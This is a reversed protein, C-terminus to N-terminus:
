VDRVRRWLRALAEPMTGRLAARAQPSSLEARLRVLLENHAPSAPRPVVMILFDSVGLGDPADFAMTCTTRVFLAHLRNAYGSEAHPLAVGDGLATSRREHRAQLRLRFDEAVRTLGSSMRRAAYALVDRADPVDLEVFEPLGVGVIASRLPGRRRVERCGAALDRVEHEAEM